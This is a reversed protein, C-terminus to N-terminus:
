QGRLYGITVTGVGWRRNKTVVQIRGGRVRRVGEGGGGEGKVMEWSPVVRDIGQVGHDDNLIHLIVTSVTSLPPTLAVQSSPSPQLM